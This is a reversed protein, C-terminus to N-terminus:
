YVLKNLAEKLELINRYRKQPNVMICKEIISGIKGHAVEKVPHNRTLMVNMLIGMAFIDTREDSQAEVYQEPAAYGITGLAVTDKKGYKCYIRATDYDIIKVMGDPLIFINEPKIDRHIIQNTHLAYLGDCIEICIRCMSELTFSQIELLDTISIGDIYEEIVLTQSENTATEVVRTLALHTFTTLIKYVKLVSNLKRVVFARKTEKHQYLLIEKSNNKKLVRVFQYHEKINNELWQYMEIENDM